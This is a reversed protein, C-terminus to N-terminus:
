IQDEPVQVLNIFSASHNSETKQFKVHFNSIFLRKNQPVLIAAIVTIRIQPKNLMCNMPTWKTWSVRFVRVPSTVRQWCVCCCCDPESGRVVRESLFQYGMKGCSCDRLVVVQRRNVIWESWIKQIDHCRISPENYKLLWSILGSHQATTTIKMIIIITIM